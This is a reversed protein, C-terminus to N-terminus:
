IHFFSAYSSFAFPLLLFPYNTPLENAPGIRRIKAKKSREKLKKSESAGALSRLPMTGCYLRPM